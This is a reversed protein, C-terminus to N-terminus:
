PQPRITASDASKCVFTTGATGESRRRVKAYFQAMSVGATGSVTIHWKGSAGTVFVGVRDRGGTSRRRYLSVHRGQRCAANSSTVRGSFRLEHSKISIHSPIRVTRTADAAGLMCALAAASLAAIRRVTM